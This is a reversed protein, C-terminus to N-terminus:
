NKFEKFFGFFVRFFPSAQQANGSGGGTRTDRSGSEGGDRPHLRFWSVFFEALSVYCQDTPFNLRYPRQDVLCVGITDPLWQSCYVQFFLSCFLHSQFFLLGTCEGCSYRMMARSSQKISRSAILNLGSGSSFGSTHDTMHPRFVISFQGQLATELDVSSQNIKDNLIIWEFLWSHAAFFYPVLRLTMGCGTLCIRVACKLLKFIFRGLSYSCFSSKRNFLATSNFKLDCREVMENISKSIECDMGEISWDIM